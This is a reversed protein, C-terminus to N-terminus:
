VSEIRWNNTNSIRAARFTGITISQGATVCCGYRGRGDALM